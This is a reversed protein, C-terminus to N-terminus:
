KKKWNQWDDVELHSRRFVSSGVIDNVSMTVGMGDATFDRVLKTTTGDSTQEEILQNLGTRRIVYKVRRGDMTVDTGPVGLRFRFYDMM